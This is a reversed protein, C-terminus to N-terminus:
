CEGEVERELREFFEVMFEHRAQALAQASPTHFRERLRSLKVFFEAVPSHESHHQDRTATEQPNPRTYLKQNLSGAIAYARAVGIAGIADLKDADFLVQAELTEPQRTGRFRHSRIANAVREAFEETAGKDLLLRRAKEASLDAHDLKEHGAAEDEEARGIDHLLAAARVV